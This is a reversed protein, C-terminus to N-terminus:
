VMALWRYSVNEENMHRCCMQGALEGKRETTFSLSNGKLSVQARYTVTLNGGIAMYAGSSRGGNALCVTDASGDEPWIYLLAPTVPLTISEDETGGTGTYSGSQTRLFSGSQALQAADAWRPVGGHIQLVGSESAPLAAMTGDAAGYLVAGREVHSLGTGGRQIPLVHPVLEEWCGEGTQVWLASPVLRQDELEELVTQWDTYSKCFPLSRELADANVIRLKKVMITEAQTSDSWQGRLQLELSGTQDLAAEFLTQAQMEYEVGNLYLSVDEREPERLQLLVMVRDSPQGVQELLQSATLYDQMGDPVFSWGGDEEEASGGSVEWQKQALDVITHKPRLWLQGVPLDAAPDDEAGPLELSIRVRGGYIRDLLAASLKEKTVSGDVLKAAAADQVAAYVKEIAQRVNDADPVNESVFPLGSAADPDNLAAILANFATRTEDHLLQMDARVQEENPEYTPFDETNKWSKSFELTAFSM